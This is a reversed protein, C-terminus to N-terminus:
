SKADQYRRALAVLPPPNCHPKLMDWGASSPSQSFYPVGESNTFKYIECWKCRSIRDDSNVKLEWDHDWESPYNGHRGM